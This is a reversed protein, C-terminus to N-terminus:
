VVDHNNGGRGRGVPGLLFTGTLSVSAFCCSYTERPWTLAKENLLRLSRHSFRLPFCKTPYCNTPSAATQEWSRLRSRDTNCYRSKIELDTCKLKGSKESHRTNTVTLNLFFVFFLYSVVHHFKLTLNPSRFMTYNEQLFLTGLICKNQKKKLKHSTHVQRKKESNLM